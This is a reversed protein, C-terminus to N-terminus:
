EYAVVVVKKGANRGKFLGIIAEPGKELGEVIDEIYTIKGEKPYQPYYDPVSFGELRVRRYATFILNCVGEPQDINYQSVVGCIHGCIRMNLLVADLMKGGVNEFYIDIGGPFCRKLAADLNHEEKYNFAEDFGLKNKLLDVMLHFHFCILKEKSGAGGLVYCGMLKAFQGVLQGVAGAAASIFVRDGKKPSSVEYFGAYVTLGPMGPFFICRYIYIHFLFFLKSIASVVYLQQLIRQSKGLIGTYYSLPFDNHQIKFLVQPATILSFEEWGTVGWVLDGEKFDPNRSDLVKAVGYGGLPSGPTYSSYGSGEPKRKGMLM